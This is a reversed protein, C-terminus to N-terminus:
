REREGRIEKEIDVEQARLRRELVSLVEGTSVLNPVNLEYGEGQYDTGDEESVNIGVSVKRM